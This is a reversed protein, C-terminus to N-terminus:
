MELKDFILFCRASISCIRGKLETFEGHIAFVLPLVILFAYVYIWTLFLDVELEHKTQDCVSSASFFEIIKWDIITEVTRRNIQILKLQVYRKTYSTLFFSLSVLISLM